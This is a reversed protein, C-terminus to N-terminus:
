KTEGPKSMGKPILYRRGDVRVIEQILARLQSARTYSVGWERAAEAMTWWESGDPGVVIGNVAPSEEYAAIGRGLRLKRITAYSCNFRHSLSLDSMKGLLNLLEQPPDFRHRSGKNQKPETPEPESM